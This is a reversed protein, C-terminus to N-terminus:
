FVPRWLYPGTNSQGVPPLYSQAPPSEKRAGAGPIWFGGMRARAVPRPPPCRILEPPFEITPPHGTPRPRRCTALRDGSRILPADGHQRDALVRAPSPAVEE